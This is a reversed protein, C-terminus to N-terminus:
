SECSGTVHELPEGTITQEGSRTIMGTVMAPLGSFTGETTTGTFRRLLLLLQGASSIVLMNLREPRKWMQSRKVQIKQETADEPVKTM